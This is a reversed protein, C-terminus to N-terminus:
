KFDNPKSILPDLEAGRAMSFFEVSGSIFLGITKSNTYEYVPSAAEGFLGRNLNPGASSSDKATAPAILPETETGNLKTLMRNQDRFYKNMSYDSKGQPHPSYGTRTDRLVPCMLMGYYATGKLMLKNAGSGSNPLREGDVQEFVMRSWNTSDPICRPHPNDTTVFFFGNNTNTYSLTGKYIQKLNSMSVTTKGALRAKQLSPLLLTMLIGIIAVVVLLEVLTFARKQGLRERM